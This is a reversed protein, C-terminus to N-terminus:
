AASASSSSSTRPWLSRDTSPYEREYALIAQREEETLWHDRPISANHENVKGYRKRWDYFKSLSIGLWLVVVCLAIETKESWRNVFDV